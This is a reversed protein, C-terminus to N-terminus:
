RPDQKFVIEIASEDQDCGIRYEGDTGQEVLLDIRREGLRLGSLRVRRLWRPFSPKFYLKANHADPEIGLLSGLIMPLAGAAWAQPSNAFRYPVPYAGADRHVGTFLEPLRGGAFLTGADIIGEIVRHAQRALGYRLMGSVAIANDHPWVSGRQYALPNYSPHESSLTRIGWGSFMDPALLRSAVKAAREETVAGAWLLHAANSAVSAIPRKNGDLGLYFTGQEDWAFQSDILGALHDAEDRLVKAQETEGFVEELVQAWSRKAYVVYGQLEVLAIPYSVPNGHEDVIGDEADRWGQHAYGKPTRPAYEQLGDGDIDGEEDIWQLASEVAPRLRRLVQENGTWRWSDAVAIVFLSTADHTGYYPTHPILRLQALEGQRLEHLIKGPQLDRDDDYGHGQLSALAILSSESFAPSIIETELGTWLADRGFLAVFWPVGAAPIWPAIEEDRELPLGAGSASLRLTVLDQCSCSLIRDLRPVDTEVRTLEAVAALTEELPTVLDGCETQPRREEPLYAVWHLCIKQPVRPELRLRFVLRGNAYEPESPSLRVEVALRRQFAKNRYSAKLTGTEEDWTTQISGRRLTTGSRVDFIDAFDSEIRLELDFEVLHSSFNEVLLDDHVGPGLIRDIRIRLEGDRLLDSPLRVDPNTFEMRATRSGLPAGEVLNLPTGGISLSWSSVLRTDKVFYGQERKRDIRGDRGTVLIEDDHALTITQSGIWEINPLPTRGDLVRSDPPLPVTDESV